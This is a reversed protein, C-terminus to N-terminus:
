DPNSRGRDSDQNGNKKKITQLFEDYKRRQEDTLIAHIRAQSQEQIVRYRPRTEQRLKRVDNRTEELIRNLQQRQDENTGLYQHVRNIDRQSRSVRERTNRIAAMGAVRTEYFDTILMGTVMGIFFITFVLIKGKLSHAIM